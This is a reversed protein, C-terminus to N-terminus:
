RSCYKVRQDILVDLDVEESSEPKTHEKLVPPMSSPLRRDLTPTFITDFNPTWPEGDLKVKFKCNTLASSSTHDSTSIDDPYVIRFGEVKNTCRGSHQMLHDKSTAVRPQGSGPPVRYSAKSM